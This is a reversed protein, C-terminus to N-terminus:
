PTPTDGFMGSTQEDYDGYNKQREYCNGFRAQEKGGRDHDSASESEDEPQPM